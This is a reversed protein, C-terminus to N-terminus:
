GGRVAVTRSFTRSLVRDRGTVADISSVSLSVHVTRVAEDVPYRPTVYRNPGDVDDDPTADVGFLVQMGEVGQVLERPPAATTKRWLSWVPDGRNNVGASRGIYYIETVVRGVSAGEPGSGGGYADQDEMASRDRRNAFPNGGSPRRFGALDGRRALGGIRFLVAQGCGSLVAVDGSVFPFEDDALVVLWVDDDEFQAGLASRLAEVRRFVVVDSGPRLQAADIRNRRSLALGTAGAGRVPLAALSPNWDDFGNGSGIGDFGEVPVSVNFEVLEEWTGNLGNVVRQAPGCGLSGAGRASRAIFDFAHRASEQLRAEGLLVLNSRGSSAFLQMLAASIVIGMSAALLLEL